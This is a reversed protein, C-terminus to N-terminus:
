FAEGISIHLACLGDPVWTARDGGGIGFCSNNLNAGTETGLEVGGGPLMRYTIEQGLQDFLPPPRGFPLRVGLDLRIPGIPTSLRLGLGVAWLLRGAERVPLEEPTVAGFDAFAVLGLTRTFHHRAEFSGEILGNGGIPSAVREAPDASGHASVLLLPSLRRMSFGRMWLSGGSMFRSVVPSSEPRGSPTLLTGVRVRVALTLPTDEGLTLYGRAEPLVRLYTFGGGLPGGAEQLSLALLHGRRPELPNDRTDWTFIQELYSLLAFCPDETCGLAFPASEPPAAAPEDLHWAQLDYSPFITFTSWPRWRVGARATGGLADYTEELRRESEVTTSLELSPHGLLRPQEFDVGTRYIPGHRTGEGNGGGLAGLALGSHLVAWGALARASLRRLGGLFDRDTWDASARAEQRVEDFGVGGGLRLSHVPGERVEVIVPVRGAAPDPEGAAVRATSFVGMEFVRRQAEELAADSFVEDEAIALRVQDRVWHPAVRGRPDARVDIAGFQYRQGPVARMQLSAASTGVDVKAVGDVRAQAQGLDRLRRLVREKAEHWSAERFPEGLRLPLGDLVRARDRPALGELGRLRFDGIRVPEHEAIEVSLDVRNDPRPIVEAKVVEADYYGRTEYLREIRRLDSQWEVPDFRQKRAFPWWGTESTLIKKKITRESLAHTGRIRLDHVVPGPPPEAALASAAAVASAAAWAIAGIAGARRARAAPRM